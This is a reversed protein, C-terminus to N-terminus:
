QRSRATRQGLRAATAEAVVALRRSGGALRTAARCAALPDRGRQVLKTYIEAEGMLEGTPAASRSM